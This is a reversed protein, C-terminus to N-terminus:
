CELVRRIFNSDNTLQFYIEHLEYYREFFSIVYDQNNIGNYRGVATVLDGYEIYKDVLYFFSLVTTRVPTVYLDEPTHFNLNYFGLEHLEKEYKQKTYWGAEVRLQTFGVSTEADGYVWRYGSEQEILAIFIIPDVGYMEAIEVAYPIILKLREWNVESIYYYKEQARTAILEEYINDYSTAIM